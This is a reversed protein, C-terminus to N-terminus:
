KKKVRIKMFIFIFCCCELKKIVGKLYIELKTFRDLVSREALLQLAPKIKMAFARGCPAHVPIKLQLTGGCHFTPVLDEYSTAFDVPVLGEQDVAIGCAVLSNFNM